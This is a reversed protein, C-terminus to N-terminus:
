CSCKWSSIKDNWTSTTFAWWGSLRFDKLRSNKGTFERHKGGYDMHEYADLECNGKVVISSVMDNWSGVWRTNGQGISKSAGQCDNHEYVIACSNDAANQNCAELVSSIIGFLLITLM